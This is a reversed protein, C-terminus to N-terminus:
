HFRGGVQVRPVHEAVWGGGVQVGAQPQTM